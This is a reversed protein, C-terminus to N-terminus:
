CSSFFPEMQLLEYCISLLPWSELMNGWPGPQGSEGWGVRATCVAVMRKSAELNIARLPMGSSPFQVTDLTITYILTRLQITLRLPLFIPYFSQFLVSPPGGGHGVLVSHPGPYNCQQFSDVNGPIGTKGNIEKKLM